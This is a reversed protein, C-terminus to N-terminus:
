QTEIGPLAKWLGDERVLKITLTRPTGDAGIAAATVIASDGTIHEGKVQTQGAQVFSYTAQWGGAALAANGAPKIKSQKGYKQYIAEVERAAAKIAVLGLLTAKDEEDLAKVLVGAVERPTSVESLAAPYPAVELSGETGARARELEM